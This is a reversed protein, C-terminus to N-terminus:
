NGGRKRQWAKFDEDQAEKLLAKSVTAYVERIAPSGEPEHAAVVEDLGSFLYDWRAAGIADLTPPTKRPELDVLALAVAWDQVAPDFWVDAVLVKGQYFGVVIKQVGKFPSQPTATYSEDEGSYTVVVENGM